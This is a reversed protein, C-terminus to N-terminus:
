IQRAYALIAVVTKADRIEGSSVKELAAELSIEVLEIFEDDDGKPQVDLKVCDKALFIEVLEDSFGIASYIDQLHSFLDSTYGTEEELERKACQMGPEGSFAKKGAPIELSERSIAYRYQRVLLLNKNSLVPLVSAAGVHKVVIRKSTKGDPLRVDDEIVELFANTFKVSRKLQTEKLDM